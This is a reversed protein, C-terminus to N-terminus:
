TEPIYIAPLYCKDDALRHEYIRLVYFSSFFFQFVCSIYFWSGFCFPNCQCCLQVFNSTAIIELQALGPVSRGKASFGCPTIEIDPKPMFAGAARHPLKSLDTLFFCRPKKAELM